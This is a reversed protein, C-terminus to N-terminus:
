GGVELGGGRQYPVGARIEAGDVLARHLANVSHVKYGSLDNLDALM